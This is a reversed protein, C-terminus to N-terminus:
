LSKKIIKSYSRLNEKKSPALKKIKLLTRNGSNKYLDFEKVEEIQSKMKKITTLAEELESNLKGKMSVLYGDKKVLPLSIESLVRLNTVARATVLDFYNLYKEVLNEARKNIILVNDLNLKSVLKQLFTTKKHNSEVLVCNLHPYFIKLVLSPFGAGPGIDLLNTITNIDIIKTITLSDYFHKLYITEKERIATLNVLQNYELLYSCYTRLQLIMKNDYTIGLKKIETSFEKENM